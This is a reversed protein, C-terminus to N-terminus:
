PLTARDLAASVLDHPLPMLQAARTWLIATDIRRGPFIDALARAYAGMQRLIGEPVESAAGPVVANSKYDVALVADPGIVLRDITGALPRGNLSGAFPVEALTGPAFLPALAPNDLVARAEALVDTGGPIAEALVPWDAAPYDPLRELLLHLATGRAMALAEPLGADGPLAKAGGLDSPRLPAPPRQPPPAPTSAWLPLAPPATVSEKARAGPAPWDGFALRLGPGAPTDLPTAGAAELGARIRAHWSEPKEVTGAAAVVLWSEARTMAVYLLRQNEEEWRRVTEAKAAAVPAPSDDAGTKWVPVDGLLITEGGQPAKRDATDPLIVVPAELGKSGHVTMVRIRDGAADAQRKVEVEDTQLWTLFGTLSPVEMREYALAQGLFQDIGDEAEPGLRAILRRRGDHRTLIRDILEFPRLFDARNRLDTLMARTGPHDDRGRLAEWLWGERGQALDYLQAESWGFLPSRL